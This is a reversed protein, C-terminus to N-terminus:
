TFERSDTNNIGEKEYFEVTIVGGHTHQGM